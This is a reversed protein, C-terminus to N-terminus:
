SGSALLSDILIMSRDYMWDRVQSRTIAALPLCGLPTGSTCTRNNCTDHCVSDMMTGRPTCRLGHLVGHTEESMHQRSLCALFSAQKAGWGNFVLIADNSGGRSM